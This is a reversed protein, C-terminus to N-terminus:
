NRLPVMAGMLFFADWTTSFDLLKLFDVWPEWREGLSGWKTPQPCNTYSGSCVPPLNPPQHVGTHKVDEPALAQLHQFESGTINYSHSKLETRAARSSFAPKDHYSVRMGLGEM